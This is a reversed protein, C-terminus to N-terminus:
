IKHELNLRKEVIKYLILDDRVIVSVELKQVLPGLWRQIVQSYQEDVYGVAVPHKEGGLGYAGDLGLVQM